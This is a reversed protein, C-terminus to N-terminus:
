SPPRYIEADTARVGDDLARAVRQALPHSVLEEFRVPLPIRWNPWQDVTGPQNPRDPAGVADDLTATVVASPATALARHAAAVVDDVSATDDLGTAAHLRSRFYADHSGDTPLGMRRRHELDAGTWVGAVTPLDHTTICAFAQHPYREPLEEEFWLLRCSLIGRDELDERVEDEVTGLDEGVVYANARHAELAVLDLLEHAPYRVYAGEGAGRGPPIWYLRFLGMVHDIRLGAGHALMARITAIFASFRDQRLKWPVFPPLGWDQGQTNFTDPPAGVRCELALQHQFAWADAGAPDFGVALDSVLGVGVDAAAALQRDLHWQCWQHFQVRERRATAFQRVQPSTPHRHEAPWTPFSPGHGPEEALACWTAFRELPEGQAAVFADFEAHGSDTREFEGYLLELAALKLPYIEDREIQARENLGRGADDLRALEPGIASVGPLDTVRLYCVNRWL